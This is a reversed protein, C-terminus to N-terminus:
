FSKARWTARAGVVGSAPFEYVIDHYRRQNRGFTSSEVHCVLDTRLLPLLSHRISQILRLDTRFTWM